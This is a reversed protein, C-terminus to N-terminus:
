TKTKERVLCPALRRALCSIALPTSAEAICPLLLWPARVLANASNLAPLTLTKTAVSM